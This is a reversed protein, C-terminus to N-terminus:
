ALGTCSVVGIRSTRRGSSSGRPVLQDGVYAHAVTETADSDGAGKRSSPRVPVDGDCGVLRCCHLAHVGMPMAAAGAALPTTGEQPGTANEAKDGRGHSASSRRTRPCPFPASAAPPAPCLVRQVRMAAHFGPLRASDIQGSRGAISPSRQLTIQRQRMSRGKSSGAPFFSSLSRRQAQRRSGQIIPM